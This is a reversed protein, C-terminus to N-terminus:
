VLSEPASRLPWGSALDAPTRRRRDFLLTLLPLGALVATLAGFLWRRLAPSLSPKEGDEREATLDALAMGPTRGFLVLSPVCLFFSLQLAFAGCWIWAAASPARSVVAAAGLFAASALLSCLLADVGFARVRASLPAARDVPAPEPSDTEAGAEERPFLPASVEPEESRQILVRDLPDAERTDSPRLELEDDEKV